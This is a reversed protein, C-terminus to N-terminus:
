FLAVREIVWFMAVSGIGYPPIRWAWPIRASFAPYRSDLAKRAFGAVTLVAAIFLLQGAEVGLNFFLLAVPIANQPLGVDNLAGAFGFGHLLGFTFAVVWPWRATLGPTGQRGHVIEAAIFVISLAITAEVPKQPVQVFGLTAAALTISHAVTFATVTAVLRNTGKVLILLALVFLLHDIGGLIHEVGLALYTGAVGWSNAAAEVTFSPRGPLLRATQTTGDTRELRVLVDTGTAALGDIGITQGALGGERRVRWREVYAGGASLGRPDSVQRTDDPFRVYIGLRENGGRAPVKWLVDYTGPSTEHFELYAPRVEHAHAMTAFAGCMTVMLLRLKMTKEGHNHRRRGRGGEAM